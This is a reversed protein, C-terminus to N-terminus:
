AKRKLARRSIKPRLVSKAVPSSKMTRLQFTAGAADTALVVTQRTHAPLRFNRLGAETITIPKLNAKRPVQELSEPRSKLLGDVGGETLKEFVELPPTRSEFLGQLARKYRSAKKRGDLDDGTYEVLVAQLVKLDSRPKRIDHNKGRIFRDWGGEEAIIILAVHYCITLEHHLSKRGFADARRRMSRARVVLAYLQDGDKLDARSPLVPPLDLIHSTKAVQSNRINTM